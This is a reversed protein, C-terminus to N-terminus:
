VAVESEEGFSHATWISKPPWSDLEVNCSFHHEGSSVVASQEQTLESLRTRWWCPLVVRASSNPPVTVDMEFNTRDTLRWSCRVLGYPGEFSVDAHTINGGPIPRVLVVKWAPDEPSIGGVTTHLWDAVAGLAYHNFSTMQGPNIDGNPLMSDWREWITTAGMTIPYIWSPCSKELLMRYALQPKGISTLAHSILPTGAFGTAIRFKARRVLKELNRVAVNHEDPTRYLSFQIALSLGTQTTSMLNGSSTIYKDQFKGKLDVAEASYREAESTKQLIACLRAFITTVHVLYADAVLIDDTRGNGPEQPPATPDLWDGYQWKEYSWDWLGDSGRDVGHSLWAQMSEFQRSLLDRDASYQYLVNPTLITVDDWVAQAVSPWARNLVDPCVLPPIGGREMQEASLDELWNGLFGITDYLFSATPTFVQIDGTWGMREDRQPCDTPVSLFNGKMSWVVNRHLQNVSANSCAFHGRRRMDSHMVLATIDELTPWDSVNLGDIQVYRFGHFTFRVSWDKLPSGDSIITDTCKASRLPRVGLEGKELVEAHRFSVREGRAPMKMTKVLVKGVLNQGFDILLKGSNTKIIKKASVTETIRVPPADPAVLKASPKPLLRTAIFDSVWSKSSISNWGPQEQRTDYLEGDYIESSQIASAACLWTDDTALNWTLLGSQSEVVVELQALLAIDRGGYWFRAGGRVGLRTAYWGEGVEAAIVNQADKGGNLHSSIDLVRYNLRHNYSTWGPAMCEDSVSIGNIYPVFVGLATIYLRAQLVRITEEPLAFQKYFRLPQLPEEPGLRTSSTIFGGTWDHPDLLGVEVVAEPSWGTAICDEKKPDETRGFCRVRVRARSRSKLDDGPWPVLVCEDSDVKYTTITNSPLLAIEVEYAIQFWGQITVESARYQWSIRPRSTGIGLGNFHHEFIPKSIVPSSM